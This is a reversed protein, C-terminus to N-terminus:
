ETRPCQCDPKPLMNRIRGIKGDFRFSCLIHTPDLLSMGIAEGHM